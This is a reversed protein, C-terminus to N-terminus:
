RGEGNLVFELGDDDLPTTPQIRRVLGIVRFAWLTRCLEFDNLVSGACLSEVDAPQRTARLLAAQDVDLTLQRFLEDTGAVAVYHVGLGGCGRAIRTWSEIQSIGDLVLQPTSMNLTIDEGPGKGEHLHYLGATLRFAQLIIDRTQDIVGHVLDKPDLAGMEVLVTGFRKGPKMEKTADDLQRLTIAGRRLLKPGLRQDPDSSAAFVLRGEELSLVMQVAEGELQLRGSVRAASAEQVLDAVDIEGLSGERKM